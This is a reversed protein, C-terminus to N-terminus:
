YETSGFLRPVNYTDRSVEEILRQKFSVKQGNEKTFRLARLKEDTLEVPNNFAEEASMGVENKYWSKAEPLTHALVWDCENVRFVKIRKLRDIEAAMLAGAKALEKVRNEPTPKYWDNSFPWIYDGIKLGPGETATPSSSRLKIPLAYVAGAKALEGETHQDDHARNWGEEEWHRTREKAIETVGRSVTGTAELTKIYDELVGAPKIFHEEFAEIRMEIAEADTISRVCVRQVTNPTSGLIDIVSFLKGKQPHFWYSNKKINM